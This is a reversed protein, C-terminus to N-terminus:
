HPSGVLPCNYKEVACRSDQQLLLFHHQPSCLLLPLTSFFFFFGPLALTFCPVSHLGFGSAGMDDPMSSGSTSSLSCSVLSLIKKKPCFLRVHRHLQQVLKSGSDIASSWSTDSNPAGPNPESIKWTRIWDCSMFMGLGRARHTTQMNGSHRCPNEVPEGGGLSSASSCRPSTPLLTPLHSQWRSDKEIHRRSLSAVRGRTVGGEGRPLQSPSWCGCHICPSHYFISSNIKAQM